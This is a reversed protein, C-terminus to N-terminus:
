GLFVFRPDIDQYQQGIINALPADERGVLPIFPSNEQESPEEEMVIDEDEPEVSHPEVPSSSAGVDGRVTSSLNNVSQEEYETLSAFPDDYDVEM